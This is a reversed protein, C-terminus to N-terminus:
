RHTIGRVVSRMRRLLVTFATLAAVSLTTVTLYFAVPSGEFGSPLNMGFIGCALAGL